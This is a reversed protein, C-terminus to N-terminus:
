DCRTPDATKLAFCAWRKADKDVLGCTQFDSENERM